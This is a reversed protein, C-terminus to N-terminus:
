KLYAIHILYYKKMKGDWRPTETWLWKKQVMSKEYVLYVQNLYKNWQSTETSLVNNLINSEVHKDHVVKSVYRSEHIPYEVCPDLPKCSITRIIIPVKLINDTNNNIM